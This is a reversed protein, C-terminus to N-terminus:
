ENQIFMIAKLSVWEALALNMNVMVNENSEALIGGGRWVAVEKSADM